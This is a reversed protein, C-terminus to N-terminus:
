IKIKGSHVSTVLEGGSVRYFSIYTSGGKTLIEDVLVKNDGLTIKSADSGIV